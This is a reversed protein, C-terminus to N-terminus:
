VLVYKEWVDTGALSRSAVHEWAPGDPFDYAHWDEAAPILQEPLYDGTYEGMSDALSQEEDDSNPAV